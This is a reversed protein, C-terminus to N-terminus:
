GCLQGKVRNKIQLILERRHVQIHKCDDHRGRGYENKNWGAHLLM